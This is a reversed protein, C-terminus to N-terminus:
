RNIVVLTVSRVSSLMAVDKAQLVEFTGVQEDAQQRLSRIETEAVQRPADAAKFGHPLDMNRTSTSPSRASPSRASFKSHLGPLLSDKRMLRGRTLVSAESEGRQHPSLTAKPTPPVEHCQPIRKEANDTAKRQRAPSELRFIKSWLSDPSLNKLASMPSSRSLPSRTRRQAHTSQPSARGVVNSPSTVSSAVSCETSTSSHPSHQHRVVRPSARSETRPSKPPVRPPIAVSNRPDPWHPDSSGSACAPIVLPRLDRAMLSSSRKHLKPDAGGIHSTIQSSEDTLPKSFETARPTPQNPEESLRHLSLAPVSMSRELAPRGPITAVLLVDTM